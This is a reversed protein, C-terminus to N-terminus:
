YQKIALKFLRAIEPLDEVKHFQLEIWQSGKARTAHFKSGRPHELGEARIIKSTLRVDIESDSHFHAIEKDRYFIASGGAVKSPRDELGPNKELMAILQKRLKSKAGSM